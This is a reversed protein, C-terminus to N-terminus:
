GRRWSIRLALNAFSNHLIIMGFSPISGESGHPFPIKFGARRGIGGSRGKVSLSKRVGAITRAGETRRSDEDLRRGAEAARCPLM